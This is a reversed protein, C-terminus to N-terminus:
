RDEREDEVARMIAAWEAAVDQSKVLRDVTRGAKDWCGRGLWGLFLGLILVPVFVVLYAVIPNSM